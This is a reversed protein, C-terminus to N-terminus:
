VNSLENTKEFNQLIKYTKSKKFLNVFNSVYILATQAIIIQREVKQQTMLLVSSFQSLTHM